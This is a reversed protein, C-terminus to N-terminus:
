KGDREKEIGDANSIKAETRLKRTQEANVNGSKPM